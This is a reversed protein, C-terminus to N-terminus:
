RKTVIFGSETIWNEPNPDQAPSVHSINLMPGTIEYNNAEIWIGLAQTVAPMQDFSGNFTVSAMTFSPYDYFKVDDTDQYDGIISSQVEIEVNEEKYGKDHFITIGLPPNTFQVKQKLFEEYLDNWLNGEDSYSPIVRRIAMIHREPMEKLEVNYKQMIHEEKMTSMHAEIIAMKSQLTELEEQIEIERMEYYHELTSFDESEIVEKIVKLPLGIQQLMKIQNVVGLQQANYYRYNSDVDIRAPVLLELEEYHHLARITLNTLRSFDGIKFM